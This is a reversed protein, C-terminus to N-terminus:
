VRLALSRTKPGSFLMATLCYPAYLVGWFLMLICAWPKRQAPQAWLWGLLMAALRLIGHRLRLSDLQELRARISLTGRRLWRLGAGAAAILLIAAAFGGISSVSSIAAFFAAGSFGVLLLPVLPAASLEVGAPLPKAVAVPGSPQVEKTAPGHELTLRNWCPRCVTQGAWTQRSQLKGIVEGCNACPPSASARSDALRKALPHTAHGCAHCAVIRSMHRKQMVLRNGCHECRFRTTRNRLTTM